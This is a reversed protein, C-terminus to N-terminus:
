NNYFNLLNVDEDIQVKEGGNIGIPSIYCKNDITQKLQYSPNLQVTEMEAM